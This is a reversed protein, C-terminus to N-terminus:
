ADAAVFTRTALNFGIAGQPYSLTLVEGAFSKPVLINTGAKAYPYFKGNGSSTLETVLVGAMTPNGTVQDFKAGGWVTYLAGQYKTSWEAAARFGLQYPQGEDIIGFKYNPTPAAATLAEAEASGDKGPNPARSAAAYASIWAARLAAENVVSPRSRPLQNALSYLDSVLPPEPTHSASLGDLLSGGGFYLGGAAVLASAAGIVLKRKMNPVIDRAECRKLEGRFLAASSNLASSRPGSRHVRRLAWDLAPSGFSLGIPLDHARQLATDRALEEALEHTRSGDRHSCIKALSARVRGVNGGDEAVSWPSDRFEFPSDM